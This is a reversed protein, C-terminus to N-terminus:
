PYRRCGNGGRREVRCPDEAHRREGRRRDVVVRIEPDGRLLHNLVPLYRTEKRSVVLTPSKEWQLRARCNVCIGHSISKAETGVPRDLLRQCWGCVSIM